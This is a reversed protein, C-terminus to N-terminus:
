QQPDRYGVADMDAVGTRQAYEAHQAPIQLPPPCAPATRAFKVSTSSLIMRGRWHLPTDERSIAPATYSFEPISALPSLRGPLWPGDRAVSFISSCM